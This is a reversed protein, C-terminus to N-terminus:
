LNGMYAVKGDKRMKVIDHLKRLERNRAQFGVAKM